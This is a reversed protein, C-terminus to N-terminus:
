FYRALAYLSSPNLKELRIILGETDILIIDEGFRVALCGDEFSDFQTIIFIHDNEHWIKYEDFVAEKIDEGWVLHQSIDLEVDYTKNLKPNPDVSFGYADGYPSSFKVLVEDKVLKNIELVKIKM